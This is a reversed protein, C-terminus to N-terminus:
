RALPQEGRHLRGKRPVADPMRILSHPGCTSDRCHSPLSGAAHLSVSPACHVQSAVCLLVCLFHTCLGTAAIWGGRRACSCDVLPQQLWCCFLPRPEVTDASGGALPHISIVLGNVRGTGHTSACVHVNQTAAAASVAPFTATGATISGRFTTLQLSALVSGAAHPFRVTVSSRWQISTVKEVGRATHAM